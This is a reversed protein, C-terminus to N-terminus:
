GGPEQSQLVRDLLWATEEDLDQEALTLETPEMDDRDRVELQYVYRDPQPRGSGLRAQNLGRAVRELREADPDASTDLEGRDMLGAFGGSRVVRLILGPGKTPTTGFKQGRRPPQGAGHSVGSSNLDAPTENDIPWAPGGRPLRDEFRGSRWPAHRPAVKRSVHERDGGV